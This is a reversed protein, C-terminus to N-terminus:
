RVSKDRAILESIPTHRDKIWDAVAPISEIHAKVENRDCHLFAENWALAYSMPEMTLSQEEIPAFLDEWILILQSERLSGLVALQQDTLAM